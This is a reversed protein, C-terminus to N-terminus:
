VAAGQPAETSAHISLWERNGIRDEAVHVNLERGRWLVQDSVKIDSRYRITILFHSVGQLVSGILAERGNVSRVQAWVTAVNSWSRTLGGTATNKVNAQRRITIRERLDGAGLGAM